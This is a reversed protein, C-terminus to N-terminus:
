TMCFRSATKPSIPPSMCLMCSRAVDPDASQAWIPRFSLISKRRITRVLRAIPGCGGHGRSGARLLVRTTTASDKNMETRETATQLAADLAKARQKAGM